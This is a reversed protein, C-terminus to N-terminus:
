HKGPANVLHKLDDFGM